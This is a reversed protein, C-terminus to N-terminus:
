QCVNNRFVALTDVTAPLCFCDYPIEQVIAHYKLEGFVSLAKCIYLLPCFPNNGATCQPSIPFEMCIQMRSLWRSRAFTILQILVYSIEQLRLEGLVLTALNWFQLVNEQVYSIQQLKYRSIRTTVSSLHCKNMQLHEWVDFLGISELYSKIFTLETAWRFSM